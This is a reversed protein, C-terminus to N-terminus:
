GFIFYSKLVDYVLNYHDFKCDTMHFFDFWHNNLNHSLVANSSYTRLFILPFFCSRDFHCYFYHFSYLYDNQFRCCFCVFHLNNCCFSNGHFFHWCLCWSCELFYSCYTYYRHFLRLVCPSSDNKLCSFLLSINFFHAMLLFRFHLCFNRFHCKRNIRKLGFVYNISIM